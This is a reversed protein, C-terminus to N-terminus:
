DLETRGQSEACCRGFRCHQWLEEGAVGKECPGTVGLAKRNQWDICARRPERKIRLQTWVNKSQGGPSQVRESTEVGGGEGYVRQNVQFVGTVPSWVQQLCIFFRCKAWEQRNTWNFGHGKPDKRLGPSVIKRGWFKGEETYEHWRCDGFQLKDGTTGFKSLIKENLIFMKLICRQM